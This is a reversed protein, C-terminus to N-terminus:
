HKRVVLFAVAGIGVLAVLAGFGPTTTPVTTPVTTAVTTASTTAITTPVTTPITTPVFAVVNFLATSSVSVTIGSVDVIYEDPQYNKTDVPFAWSNLGSTGKIVKVTGTSGSFEGSQTKETPEFSSSVVEVLIEDDVALNTTGSIVFKDGVMHQSVPNITITPTEILFQLKTYTDDISPSDMATVLAEAADSGQLSGPGTLQFVKSGATPYTSLAFVSPGGNVIPGSPYVDFKDNYMPHQVVVFYQGSALGATMGQTYEEEFSGDSNVSTTQYDAFNKGLTWIAIGVSPQGEAV